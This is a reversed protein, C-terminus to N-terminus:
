KRRSKGTIKEIEIEIISIKDIMKQIYLGGEKIFDPSYKEIILAAIKEKDFIETAKGFVVVSEYATSFKDPLLQTKGVVTFCVTPFYKINELKHGVNKACHFYIKNNYLVYNLPIAYPINDKGVTALVGYESNELIDIAELESIERDKRRVEHNM